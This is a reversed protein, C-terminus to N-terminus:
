IREYAIKRPYGVQMLGSALKKKSPPKNQHKRYDHRIWKGWPSSGFYISYSMSNESKEAFDWWVISAVFPQLEEPMSQITAIAADEDITFKHRQSTKIM